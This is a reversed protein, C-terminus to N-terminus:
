NKSASSVSERLVQPQFGDSLNDPGMWDHAEILSPPLKKETSNLRQPTLQGPRDLPQFM